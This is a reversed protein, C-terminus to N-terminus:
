IDVKKVDVKWHKEQAELIAIWTKDQSSAADTAEAARSSLRTGQLPLLQRFATRLAPPVLVRPTASQEENKAVDM